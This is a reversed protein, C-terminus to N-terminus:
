HGVQPPCEASSKPVQTLHANQNYVGYCHFFFIVAWIIQSM